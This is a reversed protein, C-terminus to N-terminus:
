EFFFAEDIGAFNTRDMGEGCRAPCPDCRRCSTSGSIRNPTAHSDSVTTLSTLSTLGLGLGLTRSFVAKQRALRAWSAVCACVCVCTMCAPVQENGVRRGRVGVGGVVGCGGVCGVCKGGVRGCGGWGGWGGVWGGVWGGWGGRVGGVGGSM